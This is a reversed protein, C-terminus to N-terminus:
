PGCGRRRTQTPTTCTLTRNGGGLLLLKMLPKVTTYDANAPVSPLGHVLPTCLMYSNRLYDNKEFRSSWFIDLYKSVYIAVGKLSLHAHREGREPLHM